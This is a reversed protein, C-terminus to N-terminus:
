CLIESGKETILVTFETHANLSGDSSRLTWGDIEDKLYTLDNSLTIIPEICLVDGVKLAHSQDSFPQMGAPPAAFGIFPEEHISKGIYHGGLQSYVNVNLSKALRISHQQIELLTKGAWLSLSIGETLARSSRVLNDELAGRNIGINFTQAADVNWGNYEVGLDLTYIDGKKLVIDRATGHTLEDNVSHCANSPFGNYGKFCPVGGLQIVYSGILEDIEVMTIDLCEANRLYGRVMSMVKRHIVAAKKVSEIDM